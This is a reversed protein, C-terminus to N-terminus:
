YTLYNLSKMQQLFLFLRQDMNEGDDFQERLKTLIDQVSHKGDCHIWVFSGLEDMDASFTEKRRFFRCFKRGIKNYFKPVTIHVLGADDTTWQYGGRKPIYSLFEEVTPPASREKKKHKM